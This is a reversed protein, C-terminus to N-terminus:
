CKNVGLPSKVVLNWCCNAWCLLNGRKVLIGHYCNTFLGDKWLWVHWVCRPRPLSREWISCNNFCACAPINQGRSLSSLKSGSKWRQLDTGTHVFPLLCHGARSQLHAWSQSGLQAKRWGPFAPQVRILAPKAVSLVDGTWWGPGPQPKQPQLEHGALWIWGPTAILM